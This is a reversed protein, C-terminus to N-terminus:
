GSRRSTPCEAVAEELRHQDTLPDHKIQKKFHQGRKLSPLNIFRAYRPFLKRLPEINGREAEELALDEHWKRTKALIRNKRRLDIRAFGDDGKNKLLAACQKVEDTFKKDAIDIAEDLKTNVWRRMWERERKNRAIWPPKGDRSM